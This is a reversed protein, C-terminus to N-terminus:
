GGVMNNLMSQVLPFTVITEILAAIILGPLVIGFYIRIADGLADRWATGVTTNKPPKTLSAGVHVMAATAILIIPIEVIGHPLLGALYLAGFGTGMLQSATYGLVIFVIPVIVYGAVGFSILSLGFALALVRLNNTFIGWFGLDGTVSTLNSTAVADMNGNDLSIPLQFQPLTGIWVGVLFYVVFVVTTVGLELRINRVAYPIGKIFWEGISQAQTGEDDIARVSRGIGKIIGILNLNDILRGLLEERNFISSGVRLLLITVVFMGLAICWLAAIGTSSGADPAVFIIVAEANIILAMPVIIFSALLNASRTTTAQSSVVVAGTVMVLAQVLTLVFMQLVVIPPPIDVSGGITLMIIYVTMGGFSALLPPIMSSLTKGIYLETNTMPTSLLPELSRREKEGVFTELAIVLSISIPFFGVVMLMLPVFQGGIFEAGYQALFGAMWSAIFQALLPFLFTLLLIPAIIRWDRLSDRVERRTIILANGLTQQWTRTDNPSQSLTM